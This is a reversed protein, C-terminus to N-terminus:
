DMFVLNGLWTGEFEKAGQVDCLEVVQPFGGKCDM